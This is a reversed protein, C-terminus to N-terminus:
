AYIKDSRIISGGQHSMCSVVLKSVGQPNPILGLLTPVATDKILLKKSFGANYQAQNLFCNASFHASCVTLNPSFHEPIESFIFRLWQDRINRDKPLSHLSINAEQCGLITCRKRSM